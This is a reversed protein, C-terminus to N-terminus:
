KASMGEPWARLASVGEGHPAERVKDREERQFHTEISERVRSLLNRTTEAAIRHGLVADFMKGALSGPPEYTGDIALWFSNYDEDSEVLLIGDFVPFMDSSYGEAEWHVTYRPTMDGRQHNLNVTVTAPQNFHGAELVVRAGSGGPAANDTLFVAILDAAAALPAHVLEREAINTM